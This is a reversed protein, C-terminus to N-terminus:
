ASRDSGAAFKGDADTVDIVQLGNEGHIAVRITEVDFYKLVASQLTAIDRNSIKTTDFALIYKHGRKLEIANGETLKMVLSTLNRFEREVYSKIIPDLFRKVVSGFM